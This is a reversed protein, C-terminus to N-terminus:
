PAQKSEEEEGGPSNGYEPAVSDQTYGSLNPLNIPIQGRYREVPAWVGEIRAKKALTDAIDNGQLGQHSNVHIWRVEAQNEQLLMNIDHYIHRVTDILLHNHRGNNKGQIANGAYQSDYVCM